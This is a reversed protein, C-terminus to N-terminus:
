QESLPLHLPHLEWEDISRSRSPASRGDYVANPIRRVNETALNRTSLRGPWSCVALMVTSSGPLTSSCSLSRAALCPRSIRVSTSSAIRCYRSDAAMVSRSADSTASVCAASSWSSDSTGSQFLLATHLPAFDPPGFQRFRDTAAGDYDQSSVRDQPANPSDYNSEDGPGDALQRRFHDEAAALSQRRPADCVEVVDKRNRAESQRSQHASAVVGFNLFQVASDLGGELYRSRPGRATWAGGRDVGRTTPVASIVEAFIQGERKRFGHVLRDGPQPWSKGLAM